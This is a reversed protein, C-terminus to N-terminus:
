EGRVKDLSRRDKKTPRGTGGPRQWIPTFNPERQKLFEAAPTLDEMFQPVLPAGVRRDLLAVVRVTRTIDGTVASVVEGIRVPRSPKVSQPGIRVKGANCAATALSRSRYLRVFWLWKDM